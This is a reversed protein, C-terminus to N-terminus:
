GIAVITTILWTGGLLIFSAWVGRETLVTFWPLMCSALWAMRIAFIPTAGMGLADYFMPELPIWILGCALLWLAPAWQAKRFVTAVAITAASLWLPAIVLFSGGPVQWCLLGGVAVWPGILSALGLRDSLWRQTLRSVLLWGLAAALFISLHVWGGRLPWSLELSPTKQLLSLNLTSLASVLCLGAVALLIGAVARLFGRVNLSSTQQERVVWIILGLMPVALMWGNWATPWYVVFWGFVDFYVSQGVAPPSMLAGRNDVPWQFNACTSLLQWANDAHHQISRPSVNEWSDGPTHYNRVEGIFAFNFGAMGAKRFITFDTDNPLRRYIEYSLSSANPRSLSRALLPTLWGNPTSTEFMLSAGRTGRAELNIAWKAEKAWPHQEAWRRAGLLGFEEGDTILFIIDNIPAPQSKWRRAVELIVAVGVGDDGAGPANPASDYHAALVIPANTTPPATGPLRFMLNELPIAPNNTDLRPHHETKQIVVEYGLATVHDVIRQRVVDNQESGAPHPIADGVLTKLVQRVKEGSLQRPSELSTLEPGRYRLVAATTIVAWLALVIVLQVLGVNRQRANAQVALQQDGAVSENKTNM